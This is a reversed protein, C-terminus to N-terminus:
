AHLKMRFPANLNHIVLIFTEWYYQSTPIKIEM